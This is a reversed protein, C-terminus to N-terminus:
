KALRQTPTPTDTDVQAATATTIGEGRVGRAERGTCVTYVTYVTCGAQRRQAARGFRFWVNALRGEGCRKHTSRTSGLSSHGCGVSTWAVAVIASAKPKQRKSLPTVLLAALTSGSFCYCLGMHLCCFPFSGPAHMTSSVRHLLPKAEEFVPVEAGIHRRKCNHRQAHPL